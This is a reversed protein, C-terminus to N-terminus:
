TIIYHGSNEDNKEEKGGTKERWNEGDRGKRMSPTSPDYFRNQLLQGSGMLWKQSGHRGNQIKSIKM